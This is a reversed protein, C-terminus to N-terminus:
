ALGNNDPTGSYTTPGATTESYNKSHDYYITVTSPNGKM